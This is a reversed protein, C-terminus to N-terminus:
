RLSIPNTATVREAMEDAEPSVRMSDGAANQVERSREDDPQRPGRSEEIERPTMPDQDTPESREPQLEDVARQEMQQQEIRALEEARETEMRAREDMQRTLDTTNQIEESAM